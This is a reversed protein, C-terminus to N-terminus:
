MKPVTVEVGEVDEKKARMEVDTIHLATNALQSVSCTSEDCWTIGKMEEDWYQDYSSLDIGKVWEPSCPDDFFYDRQQVMVLVDSQSSCQLFGIITAGDAKFMHAFDSCLGNESIRDFGSVPRRWAKSLGLHFPLRHRYNEGRGSYWDVCDCLNPDFARLPDGTVPWQSPLWCTNEMGLRAAPLAERLSRGCIKGSPLRKIQIHERLSVTISFRTDPDRNVELHLSDQGLCAADDCKPQGHYHTSSNCYIRAPFKAYEM